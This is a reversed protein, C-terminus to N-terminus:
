SVLIRYFTAFMATFIVGAFVMSIRERIKRRKSMEFSLADISEPPPPPSELQPVVGVADSSRAM